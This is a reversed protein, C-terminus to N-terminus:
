VAALLEPDCEAQKPLIGNALDQPSILENKCQGIQAHLQDVRYLGTWSKEELARRVLDLQDATGVLTFKPPLGAYRGYSRLLKLCFSHFTSINLSQARKYGVLVGIREKMETAAKNTFTMAAIHRAQVGRDMMHAIRYTVVRTKGTGAGALIMMPGNFNSAAEYQEPNLTNIDIM